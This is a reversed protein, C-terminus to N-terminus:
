NKPITFWFVSGEGPKTDVGIEGGHAEVIRKCIALGLGTSKEGGTPQASLTAFDQFLRIRDKKTIGPGQDKVEFRWISDTHELNVIINSKPPSFKIANSLLNEIVQRVRTPDAYISGIAVKQLLIHTGKPEAIRRQRTVAKELFDFADIYEPSLDLKGSEIATVDLIDELLELMHKSQQHIDNIIDQAEEVSMSNENSLLMNTMMQINAIPNRLDHAAIGLFTNKLEDLKQLEENQRQIRDRQDTLESVLRGKEVIVSLQAAIRQFTEVHIKKYADKQISSFFMFGVPVANVMLPCTLSSRMGEAVVLATSKSTPKAKLHAELDNIIRPQATKIIEALSSGELPADYDKLLKMEHQDTKAWYARVTKGDNEILSFGIRNYPIFDRFDKYVADLIDNLMLGTNIRLTIQNLKQLEHYRAELVHALRILSYGLQGIRDSPVTPVEISFNGRELEEAADILKQIRADLSPNSDSMTM